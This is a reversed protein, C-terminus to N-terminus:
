GGGVKAKFADLRDSRAGHIKAHTPCMGARFTFEGAVGIAITVDVTSTCLALCTEMMCLGADNRAMVSRIFDQHRTDM